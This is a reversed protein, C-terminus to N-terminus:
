KSDCYHIGTWEPPPPSEKFAECRQLMTISPGDNSMDIATQFLEAAESFLRKRYKTLGQQYLFVSEMIDEPIVDGKRGLLEYITVKNSKGTVVVSDVERTIFNDGTEYLTNDTILIQLNYQKSLGEVRSALNVNDGICSFEM